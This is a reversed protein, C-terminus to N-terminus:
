EPFFERLVEKPEPEGLFSGILFLVLSLSIGITIQHLGM